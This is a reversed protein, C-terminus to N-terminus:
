ECFVESEVVAPRLGFFSRRALLRIRGAEWEKQIVYDNPIGAGLTDKVGERAKTLLLCRLGRELSTLDRVEAVRGFDTNGLEELAAVEGRALSEFLHFSVRQGGPLFFRQLQETFGLTSLKLGAALNLADIEFIIFHALYPQDLERSQRLMARYFGQDLVIELELPERSAALAGRLARALPHHLPLLQALAAADAAEALLGYFARPITGAGLHGMIEETSWGAQKGRLITKVNALDSRMLILNVAERAEGAVLRPLDGVTRSLHVLVARDVDELSDGTLDPGYITEGLVKVMEPFSLKLAEGFFGEHLLQSRRVRIRANLYAFDDTL